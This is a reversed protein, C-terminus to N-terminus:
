PGSYVGEGYDRDRHYCFSVERNFPVVSEMAAVNRCGLDDQAMLVSSDVSQRDKVVLLQQSSDVFITVSLNCVEASISVCARRIGERGSESDM